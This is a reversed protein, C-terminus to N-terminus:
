SEPRDHCEIVPMASRAKGILTRTLELTRNETILRAIKQGTELRKPTDAKNLFLMKIARPPCNKLLGQEDELANVIGQATITAGMGIGSIRSFLEPRFVSKEDLPEGVSDLGIVAVVTHANKPIVPEHEAPAKLPKGAAGDAEVLIWKALRKQHLEDVIEPTYGILKGKKAPTEKSAASIHVWQDIAKRAKKEIEPIGAALIVHPSQKATPTRIKTTTTTLVSQGSTALEAALKFMLSTKGGAGIFCIM